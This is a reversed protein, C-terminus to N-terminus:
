MNNWLSELVLIKKLKLKISQPSRNQKSYCVNAAWASNYELYSCYIIFFFYKFYMGVFYKIFIGDFDVWLTSSTIMLM